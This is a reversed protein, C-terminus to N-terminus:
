SFLRGEDNILHRVDDFLSHLTRDAAVCILVVLHVLPRGAHHFLAEVLKGLELLGEFVNDGADDHLFVASAQVGGAGTEPVVSRISAACDPPLVLGHVADDADKAEGDLCGVGCCAQVWEVRGRRRLPKRDVHGRMVGFVTPAFNHFSSMSTM